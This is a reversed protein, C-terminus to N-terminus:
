MKEIDPWVARSRACIWNGKGLYVMWVGNKDQRKEYLLPEHIKDRATEQITWRPNRVQLQTHKKDASCPSHAPNIATRTTPAACTGPLQGQPPAYRAQQDVRTTPSFRGDTAERDYMKTETYQKRAQQNMAAPRNTYNVPYAHVPVFAGQMGGASGPIYRLPPATTLAPLHSQQYYPSITDYTTSHNPYPPPQNPHSVYPSAITQSGANEVHYLLSPTEVIAAPAYSTGIVQCRLQPTPQTDANTSAARTLGHGLEREESGESRVMLGYPATTSTAANDTATGPVVSSQDAASLSAVKSPTTPAVIALIKKKRTPLQFPAAACQRQECNPVVPQMDADDGIESGVTSDSLPRLHKEFREALIRPYKTYWSQPIPEGKVRFLRMRQEWICRSEYQLVDLTDWSKTDEVDLNMCHSTWITTLEEVLARKGRADIAQLQKRHDEQIRLFREQVPTVTAFAEELVGLYASSDDRSLRLLRVGVTAAVDDPEAPLHRTITSGSGM